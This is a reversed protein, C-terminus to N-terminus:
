LFSICPTYSGRFKEREAGGEATECCFLRRQDLQTLGSNEEVHRGDLFGIFARLREESVAVTFM